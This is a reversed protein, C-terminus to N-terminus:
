RLFPQGSECLSDRIRIMQAEHINISELTDLSIFEVRKSEQSTRIEGRVIECLFCISFQQRIEGDEYMIVHNPDSYIGILKKVTVIFGTEEMVERIIAEEVTEGPEITGGPLSWKGNDVREQLLIEKKDSLIVASVAPIIVEPKPANQDYYYDTRNV